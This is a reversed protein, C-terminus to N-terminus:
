TDHSVNNLVKELEWNNIDEISNHFGNSPMWTRTTHAVTSNPIINLLKNLISEILDINMNYIKIPVSIVLGERTIKVNENPYHYLYIFIDPTINSKNCKNWDPAWIQTDFFTVKANDFENERYKRTWKENNSKNWVMRGFGLWNDENELAQNTRIYAKESSLNVLTDILPFINKWNKWLYLQAEDSTNIVMLKYKKNLLNYISEFIKM